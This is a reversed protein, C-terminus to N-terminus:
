ANQLNPEYYEHKLMRTLLCMKKYTSNFDNEYWEKNGTLHNVFDEVCNIKLLSKVVNVCYIQIKSATHKEM